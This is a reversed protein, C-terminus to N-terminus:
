LSQDLHCFCDLRKGGPIYTLLKHTLFPPWEPPGTVTSRHGGPYVISHSPDKPRVGCYQGPVSEEWGHHLGAFGHPVSCACGRGRFLNDDPLPPFHKLICMNVYINLFLLPHRSLSYPSLLRTHNPFEVFVRQITCM